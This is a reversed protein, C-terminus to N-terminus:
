MHFFNVKVTIPIGHLLSRINGQERERDLEQAIRYIVKSPTVSIMANLKLGNRNHHQIQNLYADVLDVSTITGDSLFKQLETSTVTLLDLSAAANDPSEPGTM